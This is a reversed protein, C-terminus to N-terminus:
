QKEIDKIEKGITEESNKLVKNLDECIKREEPSFGPQSDLM